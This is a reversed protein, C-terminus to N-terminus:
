WYCGDEVSKAKTPTESSLPRVWADNYMESFFPMDDWRKGKIGFFIQTAGGLHIAKKGARKFRAALPFGYAGCGLIAVDFDLNLAEQEM